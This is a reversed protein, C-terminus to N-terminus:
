GTEVHPSVQHQGLRVDVAELWFIHIRSAIVDPSTRRTFRFVARSVASLNIDADRRVIDSEVSWDQFCSGNM